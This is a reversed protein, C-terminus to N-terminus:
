MIKKLTTFRGQFAKFTTGSLGGGQNQWWLKDDKEVYEVVPGANSASEALLDFLARASPKTSHKSVYENWRQEMAIALGDRRTKPEETKGNRDGEDAVEDSGIEDAGSDWDEGEESFMEAEALVIEGFCFLSTEVSARNSASLNKRQIQEGILDVAEQQKVGYKDAWREALDCFTLFRQRPIFERIEQEDFLIEGDLNSAKLFGRVVFEEMERLYIGPVRPRLMELASDLGIYSVACSPNDSSTSGFGDFVLVDVGNPLLPYFDLYPFGGRDDPIRSAPSFDEAFASVFDDQWVFLGSPLLGVSEAEWDARGSPDRPLRHDLGAMQVMVRDWGERKIRSPVGANKRFVAIESIAPRYDSDGSFASVLMDPSLSWGTIYPIARVPIAERGQILVTLKM